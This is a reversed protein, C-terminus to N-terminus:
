FREVSKLYIKESLTKAINRVAMRQNYRTQLQDTGLSFSSKGEMSRNEWIINGTAREVLKLSVIIQIRRQKTEDYTITEGHIEKRISSYSLPETNIEVIKGILVFEAKDKSVLPVKSHSIFQERIFRTFDGEFGLSSSTSAMLPIALSKM